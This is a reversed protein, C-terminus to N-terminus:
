LTNVTLTMKRCISRRRQGPGALAIEEECDPVCIDRDTSTAACRQNVKGASLRDSSLLISKKEGDQRITQALRSKKITQLLDTTSEAMGVSAKQPIGPRRAGTSLRVKRMNNSGDGLKTAYYPSKDLTSFSM